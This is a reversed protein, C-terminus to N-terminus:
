CNSSLSYIEKISLNLFRCVNKCLIFSWVKQTNAKIIFVFPFCIEFMIYVGDISSNHYILIYRCAIQNISILM